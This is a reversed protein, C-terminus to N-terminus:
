PQQAEIRPPEQQNNLLNAPWTSLYDMSRTRLTEYRQETQESVDYRAFLDAAQTYAAINYPQAQLARLLVLEAEEPRDATYLCRALATMGPTSVTIPDRRQLKLVAECEDQRTCCQYLRARVTQDRCALPDKAIQQSAAHPGLAQIDTLIQNERVDFTLASAGCALLIIVLAAPLLFRVRARQDPTSSATCATSALERNSLLALVLLMIISGFALDFDVLAHLLLLTAAAHTGPIRDETAKLTGKWLTVMCLVALTTGILGYSLTFGLYSNHIVNATYQASQVRPHVVRWQQPGIGIHPASALARTGDITQILREMGTQLASDLRDPAGICIAFVALAGIGLVAIAIKSTSAKTQTANDRKLRTLKLNKLVWACGVIAIVTFTGMSQTLATCIIPATVLAKAARTRAQSWVLCSMVAFYAGATNAYQFTFQLRGDVVAGPYPLVRAFMLLAVVSFLVGEYAILQIASRKEAQSLQLWYTATAIALAPRAMAALTEYSAIEDLFPRAACWALLCIAIAASIALLPSTCGSKENRSAGAGTTAFAKWKGRRVAACALALLSFAIVALACLAPYYGGQFAILAALITAPAAAWINMSTGSGYSGM